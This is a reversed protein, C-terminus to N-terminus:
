TKASLTERFITVSKELEAATANLPPLLRIVNGGSWVGLLGHDRLAPSM